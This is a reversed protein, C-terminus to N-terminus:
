TALARRVADDRGHRGGAHGDTNKAAARPSPVPWADAPMGRASPARRTAMSADLLLPPPAACTALRSARFYLLLPLEGDCYQRRLDAMERAGGAIM